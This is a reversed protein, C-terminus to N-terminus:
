KGFMVANIDTAILDSIEQETKGARMLRSVGDCAFSDAHAIGAINACFENPELRIAEAAEIAIGCLKKYVTENITTM